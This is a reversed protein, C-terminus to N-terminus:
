SGEEMMNLGVFVHIDVMFCSSNLCRQKPCSFSMPGM